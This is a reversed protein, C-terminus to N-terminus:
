REQLSASIQFVERIVWPLQLGPESSVPASPGVHFGGLLALGLKQLRPLVTHELPLLVFGDAFALDEAKGGASTM